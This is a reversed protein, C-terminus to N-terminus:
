SSLNHLTVHHITLYTHTIHSSVSIGYKLTSNKGKGPPVLLLWIWLSHLVQGINHLLM